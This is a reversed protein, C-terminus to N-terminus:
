INRVVMWAGVALLTIAVIRRLSSAPVSHAIHAGGWVGVMLLVGLATGLVFDVQGYLLYGVTGFIAVPIQVVQSAGVAGLVQAHMFVLIPILLVPGGTGTLVSGFGVLAGISLLTLTSFSQSQRNIAPPKSLLSNIGVLAIMVALIITLVGAPLAVNAGAGLVAAPIIGASLWVGMRWNISRRRSYSVTGAMGSFIFSWVSTAMALHLDLGGIYTLAPPMLVGGVGICGILGGIILASVALLLM